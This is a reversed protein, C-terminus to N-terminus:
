SHTQPVLSHATAAPATEAREIKLPANGQEPLLHRAIIASDVQELRVICSYPIRWSFNRSQGNQGFRQELFISSGSDTVLTGFGPLTMDGVRYRVEVAHGVFASYSAM